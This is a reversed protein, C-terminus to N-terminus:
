VAHGAHCVFCAEVEFAGRRLQAVELLLLDKALCTSMKKDRGAGFQLRFGSQCGLWSSIRVRTELRESCSCRIREGPERGESKRAYAFHSVERSLRRALRQRLSRM